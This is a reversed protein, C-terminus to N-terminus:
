FSNRVFRRMQAAATQKAKKDPESPTGGANSPSGPTGSGGNGFWHAREKKLTDILKAIAKSDVKGDEDIMESLDQGSAWMLVDDPVKANAAIAAAHIAANRVAEIRRAEAQELSALTTVLKQRETELEAKLREADSMEAQERKKAAELATKLQDPKEFGIEKLFDTIASRQARALRENFAKQPMSITQSTEETTEPSTDPTATTDVTTQTEDTM